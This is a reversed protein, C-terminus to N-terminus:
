IKLLVRNTRVKTESSFDDSRLCYILLKRYGQRCSSSRRKFLRAVRALGRRRPWCRATVIWFIRWRYRGDDSSRSSPCNRRSRQHCLWAPVSAELSAKAIEWNPVSLGRVTRLMVLASRIALTTTYDGTAVPRPLRRRRGLGAPRRVPLPVIASVARAAARRGVRNPGDNVGSREPRHAM